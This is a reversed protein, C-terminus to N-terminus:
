LAGAVPGGAEKEGAAARGIAAIIQRALLDPDNAVAADLDVQVRLGDLGAVEAARLMGPALGEAVLTALTRAADEDLGAVRLALREVRVEESAAPARNSAPSM